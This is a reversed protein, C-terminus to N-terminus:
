GHSLCCSFMLHVLVQFISISMKLCAVKLNRITKILFNHIEMLTFYFDSKLGNCVLDKNFSLM